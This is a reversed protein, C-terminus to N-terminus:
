DVRPPSPVDKFVQAAVQRGLAIRESFTPATLFRDLLEGVQSDRSAIFRLVDAPATLWFGRLRFFAQVLDEVFLGLLYQATAPQHQLDEAKGLWHFCGVKLRIKENLSAAPPGQRFRQNAREVLKAGAGEIEFLVRGKRLLPPLRPVHMIEQEVAKYGRYRVEVERDAVRFTEEGEDQGTILAILDLDSHPTLARRAGSGVLIVAVLDGGRKGRVYRLAAAILEEQSPSAPSAPQEPPEPIDLLEALLEERTPPNSATQGPRSTSNQDM